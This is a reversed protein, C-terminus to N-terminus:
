TPTGFSGRGRAIASCASRTSSRTLKSIRAPVTEVIRTEEDTRDPKRSLENVTKEMQDRLKLLWELSEPGDARLEDIPASSNSDGAIAKLVQVQLPTGCASARSIWGLALSTALVAILVRRM